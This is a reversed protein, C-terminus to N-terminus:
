PINDVSIYRDEPMLNHIPDFDIWGRHPLSASFWAQSADAGVLYEESQAHNRYLGQCTRGIMPRFCFPSPISNGRATCAMPIATHMSRMLGEGGMREVARFFPRARVGDKEDWM